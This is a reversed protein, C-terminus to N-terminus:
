TIGSETPIEHQNTTAKWNYPLMDQIPLETYGPINM